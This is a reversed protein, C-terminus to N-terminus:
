EIILLNKQITCLCNIPLPCNGSKKSGHFYNRSGSEFLLYLNSSDTAIQELMPPIILTSIYTKQHYNLSFRANDHSKYNNAVSAHKCTHIDHRPITYTVAKSKKKRGYSISFTLYTNDENTWFCIGQAKKLSSLTLKHEPNTNLTLFSGNKVVPYGYIVPTSKSRVFNGVWLYGNFYTCYSSTCEVEFVSKKASIISIAEESTETALQICKNFDFATVTGPYYKKTDPNSNNGSCVWLYTGDFALGGVHSSFPLILTNQYTGNKTLMYIVSPHVNKKCYASILIYDRAFCIGQVIMDQCIDQQLMATQQQGPIRISYDSVLSRWTPFRFRWGRRSVCRSPLTKHKMVSDCQTNPLTKMNLTNM